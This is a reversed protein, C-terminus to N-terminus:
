ITDNPPSTPKTAPVLSQAVERMIFSQVDKSRTDILALKEKIMTEIRAWREENEKRLKALIATGVEDTLVEGMLQRVQSRVLKANNSM